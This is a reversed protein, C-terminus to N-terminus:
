DLLVSCAVLVYCKFLPFIQLPFGGGRGRENRDLGVGFRQGIPAMGPNVMQQAGEAGPIGGPTDLRRRHNSAYIQRCDLM